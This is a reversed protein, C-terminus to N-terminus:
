TIWLLIPFIRNIISQQHGAMPKYIDLPINNGICSFNNSDVALKLEFRIVCAVQVSDKEMVKQSPWWHLSAGECPYPNLLGINKVHYFIIFGNCSHRYTKM